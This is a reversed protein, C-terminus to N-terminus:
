SLYSKAPVSNSFISGYIYKGNEKKYPLFCDFGFGEEHEIVVELAKVFGESEFRKVKVDMGLATGKHLKQRAGAALTATIQEILKEPDMSKEEDTLEGSRQVSGDHQLTIAFPYCFDEKELADCGLSLAVDLLSNLDETNM